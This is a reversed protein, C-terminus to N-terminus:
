RIVAKKSDMAGAAENSSMGTPIHRGGQALSASPKLGSLLRLNLVVHALPDGSTGNTSEDWWYGSVGM